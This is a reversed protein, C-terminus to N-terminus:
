ELDHWFCSALLFAFGKPGIKDPLSRWRFPEPTGAEPIHLDYLDGPQPTELTVTLVGMRRDLGPLDPIIRWEESTVETQQARLV